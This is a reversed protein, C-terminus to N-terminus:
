QANAMLIETEIRDFRFRRFQDDRYRDRILVTTETVGEVSGYVVRSKGNPKRYSFSVLLSPTGAAQQVKEQNSM